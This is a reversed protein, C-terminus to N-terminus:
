HQVPCRADAHMTKVAAAFNSVLMDPEALRLDPLRHLIQDLMHKIQMRALFAGLCYHPGGGGFAVHQNPKRSIDFTWPDAFEVEDRNGSSYMMVVWEGKRIQRGGLVTDRTATRRFTMVPTVWRLVEDIAADIRGDFDELLYATQDPNDVFAKVGLSLTTRTTDNGAFSTLVFMSALEDDTLEHGDVQAAVLNSWIDDRPCERTSAAFELGISLNGILADNLVEASSRGAAIDPDNWGALEDAFHAAEERQGSPLGTMDYITNMPMQKAVHEVWDGSGKALFDDVITAARHRIQDEIRKVQRPTFSGSMLRRYTLHKQGDMALFSSAAELFEDPVEELQIGEGSCFIEPHTSVERILEHSTVAWFGAIGSPALDSEAPPQWSVPARRRLEAFAVDRQEASQAWFATPSIDVTDYPRGKESGAPALASQQTVSDM